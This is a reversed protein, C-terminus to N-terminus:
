FGGEGKQGLPPSPNRFGGGKPWFHSPPPPNQDGGRQALFPSPPAEFGGGKPWFLPPPEAGLAIRLSLLPVRPANDPDTVISTAYMVHHMELTICLTAFALVFREIEELM